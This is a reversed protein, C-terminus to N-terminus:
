FSFGKSCTVFKKFGNLFKCVANVKYKFRDTLDSGGDDVKVVAQAIVEDEATESNGGDNNSDDSNTMSLFYYCNNKKAPSMLFGNSVELLFVTGILSTFKM